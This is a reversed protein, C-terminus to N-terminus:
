LAGANRLAQLQAVTVNVHGAEGSVRVGAARLALVDAKGSYRVRHTDGVIYSTM